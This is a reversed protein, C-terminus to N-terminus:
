YMIQSMIHLQMIDNKAKINKIDIVKLFSESLLALIEQVLFFHHYRGEHDINNTCFQENWVVLSYISHKDNMLERVKNLYSSFYLSSQHHFCGNDLILDYKYNNKENFELFSTTM